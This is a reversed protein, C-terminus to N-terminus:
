SRLTAEVVKLAADLAHANQDTSPDYSAIGLAAVKTHKRIEAIAQLLDDLSLGDPPTWQNPTAVAPDLVDLDIHLYVHDAEKALDMLDNALHALTAPQLVGSSELLAREAPEIERAGFLVVRNGPVPAFGPISEALTQWARGLLTSIPMGDLFGSRTTEPTTSEGHADFWIVATRDTGCGSVTGVGAMCNGSLIIPFRGKEHSLRVREAVKRCLEFASSIETPYSNELAIEQVDFEFRLQKLLGMLGSQLIRDPGLGMRQRCHGSDYPVLVVDARM